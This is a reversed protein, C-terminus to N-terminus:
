IMDKKRLFFWVGISVLLSIGLLIYFAFPNSELPLRVNMGWFSGVMTPLSLIITVSTLYKM